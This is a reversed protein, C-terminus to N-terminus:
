PKTARCRCNNEVIVGYHALAVGTEPRLWEFQMRLNSHGLVAVSRYSNRREAPPTRGDEPAAVQWMGLAWDWDEPQPEM